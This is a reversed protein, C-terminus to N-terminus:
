MRPEVGDDGDGIRNAYFPFCHGVTISQFLLPFEGSASGFHLAMKIAALSGRSDGRSRHARVRNQRLLFVRALGTVWRWATTARLQVGGRGEANREPRSVPSFTREEPQGATPRRTSM